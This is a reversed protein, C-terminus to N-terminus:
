YVVLPPYRASSVRLMGGYPDEMSYVSSSEPHMGSHGSMDVAPSVAAPSPPQIPSNPCFQQPLTLRRSPDHVPSPLLPPVPKRDSYKRTLSAGGNPNCNFDPEQAPPVPVPPPANYPLRLPVPPNPTPQRDPAAPASVFPQYYGHLPPGMQPARPQQPPLYALGHAHGSSSDSVRRKELPEIHNGGDYHGTMGPDFTIFDTHRDRRRKRMTWTVIVFLLILVVIGVATFVGGELAPNQLFSKPPANTSSPSPM